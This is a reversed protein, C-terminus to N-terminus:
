KGDPYIAAYEEPYLRKACEPCISHSFEVESRARIYSEIQNWYGKDDRIKKCSACIPLFGSLLKVKALAERLEVILAEKEKEQQKQRSIDRAIHVTGLMQEKEDFYPSCTVLLTIGLGPDFVEETVTQRSALAKAHPCQPWPQSSRHMTEFCVRGILAEAPMGLFNALAKNVRIFRFERDHVSVFDSISDFTNRWERAAYEIKKEANKEETIDRILGDYAIIQQHTDYRRVVTNHIWRISGDKHRIRHELASSDQGALIAYTQRLVSDRDEEHIMNLWLYPNAAYEESSFGTVGLCARSHVTHVARGNELTVTYTYDTVAQLLEAYRRECNRLALRLDDQEAAKNRSLTM